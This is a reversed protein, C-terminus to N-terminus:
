YPGRGLYRGALGRRLMVNLRVEKQPEESEIRASLKDSVKDM